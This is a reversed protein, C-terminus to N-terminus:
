PFADPLSTIESELIGVIRWSLSRPALTSHHRTSHDTLILGFPRSLLDKRRKIRNPSGVHGGILNTMVRKRNSNHGRLRGGLLWRYILKRNIEQVRSEPEKSGSEDKRKVGYM